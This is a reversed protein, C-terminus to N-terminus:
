SFSGKYRQQPNRIIEVVATICVNTLGKAAIYCYCCFANKLFFFFVGTSNIEHYCFCHLMNESVNIELLVPLQVLVFFASHNM